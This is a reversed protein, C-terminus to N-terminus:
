RHQDEPDNREHVERALDELRQGEGHQQAERQRRHGAKELPKAQRAGARDSQRDHHREPEQGPDAVDDPLLQGRQGSTQGVILPVDLGLELLHELRVLLGRRIPQVPHSTVAL